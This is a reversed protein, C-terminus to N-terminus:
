PAEVDLVAETPGRDTEAMVNVRRLPLPPDVKMLIQRQQDPLLYQAVTKNSLDAAKGSPDALKLRLLRLHANGRNSVHVAISNDPAAIARWQLAPEAKQAAEVFIPIGVRLAVQLGQYGASPPPPVEEAFLRYSLERQAGASGSLGVRVTQSAGPKITMIPPTAILEDSPEYVDQAKDASWRMVQLQLVMSTSGTNELTLAATPASESLTVRIPNVALSGARAQLSFLLLAIQLLSAILPNFTKM